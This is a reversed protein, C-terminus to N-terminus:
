DEKVPKLYIIKGDADKYEKYGSNRLHDPMLPNSSNGYLPNEKELKAWLADRKEKALERAREKNALGQKAQYEADQQDMLEQQRLYAEREKALVVAAKTADYGCRKQMEEPLDSLLVRAFGSEHSFSLYAETVKVDKVGVYEKGSLTKLVTEGRMVDPRKEETEAVMGFAVRSEDSLDKAAYRGVGGSHVVNLRGDPQIEVSSVGELIQGDVLKVSAPVEAAFIGISLFILVFMAKM